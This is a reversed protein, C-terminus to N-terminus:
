FNIQPTRWTLSDGLLNYKESIVTAKKPLFKILIYDTTRNKYFNQWESKWFKEKAEITNVISAIGQLTVYGVNKADFYYLTVKPNKEIQRVKVSKPNTALWVTFNDEPLFPDMARAHAVGLSDVTILACNKANVMIEKAVQKSDKKTSTNCAFFFLIVVFFLAIRM